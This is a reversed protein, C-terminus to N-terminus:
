YLQLNYVHIKEKDRKMNKGFSQLFLCIKYLYVNINLM